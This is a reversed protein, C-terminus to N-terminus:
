IHGGAILADRWVTGGYCVGAHNFHVHSQGDPATGATGDAIFLSLDTVGAAVTAGAAIAEASLGAAALQMRRHKAIEAVESPLPGASVNTLEYTDVITSGDYTEIFLSTGSRRFKQELRDLVQMDYGM